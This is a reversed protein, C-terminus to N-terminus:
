STPSNSYLYNDMQHTKNVKEVQRALASEGLACFYGWDQAPLRGRAELWLVRM